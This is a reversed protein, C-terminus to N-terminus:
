GRCDILVLRKQANHGTKGAVGGRIHPAGPFDAAAVHCVDCYM